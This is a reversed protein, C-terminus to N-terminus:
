VIRVLDEFFPPRLVIVLPIGNATIARIVIEAAAREEDPKPVGECCRHGIKDRLLLFSATRPLASPLAILYKAPVIEADNVKCPLDPDDGHLADYQPYIEVIGAARRHGRKAM